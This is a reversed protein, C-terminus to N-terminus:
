RGDKGENELLERLRSKHDAEVGAQECIKIRVADWKLQAANLWTADGVIM